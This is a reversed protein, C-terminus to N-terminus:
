RGPGPRVRLCPLSLYRGQPPIRWACSLDPLRWASLEDNAVALLLGGGAPIDLATVPWDHSAFVAERQRTQLNWLQLAYRTGEAPDTGVILRGEGLPALAEVGLGGSDFRGIEIGGAVDWLRVRGDTGGSALCGPGVFAVALTAGTGAPVLPARPGSALEIVRIPGERTPIAAFVGDCALGTPEGERDSIVAAAQRRVSGPM